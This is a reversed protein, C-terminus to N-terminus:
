VARQVNTEVTRKSHYCGCSQTNGSYLNSTRVNVTNGCQCRCEVVREGAKGDRRKTSYSYRVVTLYGFVEGGTLSRRKVGM